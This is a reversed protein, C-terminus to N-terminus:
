KKIVLKLSKSFGVPSLIKMLYLGEPMTSVDILKKTTSENITMAKVQKGSLDTITILANKLDVNNEISVSTTAPNPFLSFSLQKFDKAFAEEDACEPATASDSFYIAFEEGVLVFNDGDLAAYYDGDLNAIGTNILSIEPNAENFNQTANSFNIYWPAVNMNFSFQYLGNNNLDWNVTFATVNDLNPGGTGIVHSYAYAANVSPLSNSLPTGFTCDDVPPTVIDDDSVTITVSATDMGGQGDNVTVTATYNGTTYTHTSTADTGSTGDGYDISYTLTDGDADSSGTADLTVELPTTGSSPTATLDAVPATNTPTGGGGDCDPTATSNSFYITFGLTKSVMIFNGNDVSVYYDGDLGDFGSDSITMDPSSSAFTHVMDGRLDTWYAPQGTLTQISFQYLGNSNQLNWNIDFKYFDSLDPGYEGIIHVNRYSGVLTPLPSDSPTDFPCVPEGCNPDEILDITESAGSSFEEDSVTLTVMASDLDTFTHSVQIGEATTGDGFDWTYTLVDGNADYSDSADFLVEPGGCIGNDFTFIAEPAVNTVPNNGFDIDSTSYFAEGTLSRQWVSYLVHKGTRQPLIIDIDDIAASPRPDTRVLRELSDWTLPQDPTWDPKTIFVDYYLTEHPASNTWTVTYPGPTVPTAVWDSRVQDLGGYKDPRGASALNGDDIIAQHMGFADMRAVENWDYFAQTGWGIIADECAPSDPSQPDEQFCIWVRSPPNTVTGHSFISQNTTLFSLFLCLTTRFLKGKAFTKNILTQTEMTTM